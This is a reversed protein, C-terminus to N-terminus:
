NKPPHPLALNGPPQIMANFRRAELKLGVELRVCRTRIDHLAAHIDKRLHYLSEKAAKRDDIPITELNYTEEATKALRVIAAQTSGAIKELSALGEETLSDLVHWEMYITYRGSAHMSLRFPPHGGYGSCAAKNMESVVLNRVDRLARADTKVEPDLQLQRWRRKLWNNLEERSFPKEDVGESEAQVFLADHDERFMRAYMARKTELGPEIVRTNADNYEESEKLRKLRIIDRQEM